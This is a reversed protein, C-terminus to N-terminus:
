NLSERWGCNISVRRYGSYRLHHRTFMRDDAPLRRDRANREPVSEAIKPVANSESRQVNRRFNGFSQFQFGAPVPVEEDEM